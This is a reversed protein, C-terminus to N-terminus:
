TRISKGPNLHPTQRVLSELILPASAGVNVALIPKIPIDSAIYVVVLLGGACIMLFTLIWYLPSKVWPPFDRPDQQRLKWWGLLEALCGGLCGFLFGHLAEM